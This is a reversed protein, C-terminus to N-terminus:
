KGLFQSCEKLWNMYLRQEKDQAFHEILAIVEDSLGFNRLYETLAVQLREDLTSFDPGMYFNSYKDVRNSSKMGQIDHTTTVFNINVEGNITSCDYVM